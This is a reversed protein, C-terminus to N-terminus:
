CGRHYDWRPATTGGAWSWGHSDKSWVDTGYGYQFRGRCIFQGHTERTVYWRQGEGHPNAVSTAATCPGSRVALSTWGSGLSTNFGGGFTSFQGCEGAAEAAGGSFVLVAALTVMAAFASVVRSKM